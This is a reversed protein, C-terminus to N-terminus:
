STVRFSAATGGVATGYSVPQKEPSRDRTVEPWGREAKYGREDPTLQIRESGSATRYTKSFRSRAGNEETSGRLTEDANDM